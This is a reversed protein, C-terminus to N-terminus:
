MLLYDTLDKYLGQVSSLKVEYPAVYVSSIYPFTPPVFISSREALECSQLRLPREAAVRRSM